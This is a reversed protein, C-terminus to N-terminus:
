KPVYVALPSTNGAYSVRTLQIYDSTFQAPNKTKIEIHGHPHSETKDWVVISGCPLSYLPNHNSVKTYYKLFDSYGDYFAPFKYASAPRKAKIGLTKELMNEVAALCHGESTYDPKGGNNKNAETYANKILQNVWDM